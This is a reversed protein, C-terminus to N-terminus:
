SWHKSCHESGLFNWYLIEQIFAPDLLEKEWRLGAQTINGTAQLWLLGLQDIGMTCMTLWNHGKKYNFKPASKSDKENHHELCFKDIVIILLFSPVRFDIDTKWSLTITVAFRTAQWLTCTNDWLKRSKVPDEAQTGCLQLKPAQAINRKSSLGGENAPPQSVSTKANQASWRSPSHEAISSPCLGQQMPAASAGESGPLESSGPRHSFREKWCPASVEKLVKVQNLWIMERRILQFTLQSPVKVGDKFIEENWPDIYVYLQNMYLKGFSEPHLIWSGICSVCFVHMWDRPQSSEGPPPFAVWELIRAQFLGPVTSDSPNCDKTNCLTPRSLVVLSLM